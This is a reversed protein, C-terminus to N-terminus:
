INLKEDSVHEKAIKELCSICLCDNYRESIWQRSLSNLPIQACECKMINYNNCEFGAGCRPCTKTETKM